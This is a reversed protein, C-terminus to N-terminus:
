QTLEYSEVMMIDATTTRGTEPDFWTLAISDGATLGEKLALLDNNVILATDNGMVLIHGPRIGKSWADSAPEVSEVYLGTMQNVAQTVPRVTIGLMPRGVVHGHTMLDSVINEVTAAPIAFGLGEVTSYDSMMKMNTIGVVRGAEDVLAGGSNGTNMAATTQLLTMEYGGVMVNRGIGSIIGNTMTNQFQEGLPNGIAYAPVGVALLADSAFPAATLGSASFKLVALDTQEDMGILRAPYKRGDYLTVDVAEMGEIVHSNTVFYGAADFIVGTGRSGRGQSDMATVGLVAPSIREYIETAPLAEGPAHVLSLSSEGPPAIRLITTEQPAAASVPQSPAPLPQGLGPTNAIYIGLVALGAAILFLFLFFLPLARRRRRRPPEPLPPLPRLDGTPVLDYYDSRM